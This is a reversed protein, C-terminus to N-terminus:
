TPLAFGVGVALGVAIVIALAWRLRRLRDREGITWPRFARRM